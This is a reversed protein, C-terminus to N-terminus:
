LTAKAFPLLLMYLTLPERDKLIPLAHHVSFRAMGKKTDDNM